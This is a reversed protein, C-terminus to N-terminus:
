EQPLVARVAFPPDGPNTNADIELLPQVAAAGNAAATGAGPSTVDPDGPLWGDADALLSPISFTWEYFLRARDMDLFRGNQFMFGKAHRSPDINWGLIAKCIAAFAAAYANAAGQGRRDARNDLQVVVAVRETMPQYLGNMEDNPEADSDGPMVYAAPAPLWVQDSLGEQFSAGGAVNGGFFPAAAKLQAIVLDLDM